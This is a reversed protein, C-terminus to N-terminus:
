AVEEAVAFVVKGPAVLLDEDSTVSAEIGANRVFEVWVKGAYLVQVEAATTSLDADELLIGVADVNYTVGGDTITQALADTAADYAYWAGNIHVLLHGAKASVTGSATKVELVESLAGAMDFTRGGPTIYTPNTM